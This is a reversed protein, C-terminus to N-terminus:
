INKEKEICDLLIRNLSPVGRFIRSQIELARNDAVLYDCDEVINAITPTYKVQVRCDGEFLKGGTQWNLLDSNGWTIHGTITTINYSKIWYEGGCGSCLSDQSTNAVPDLECISCGSLTPVYFNVDRGIAGRIDDIIGTLVM